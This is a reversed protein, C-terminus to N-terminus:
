VNVGSRDVLDLCPWANTHPAITKTKISNRLVERAEELSKVHGQALAQVMMNGAAGSGPPVVVVPLQLANATFHNLLSIEQGDLVFLKTIKHGTLSEMERLTNRYLTALSELICRIIPGPKRPVTQNTDRCFAQIELPMDGTTLFRPDTLDVLSEFPPSEGAFHILMNREIDHGGREKWLRECEELIWLGMIQKHFGVSGAYGIQNSFLSERTADNIIPKVLNTGMLARSGPRMFAWCEEAGVPLGALAAAIEHSCSAIVQVDDLKTDTAIAARLAGLNTGAPVIAPFLKAPLRAAALLRESWTKALPNFLQTTGASSMEVRPTGSLLYNFGDAIPLLQGAHNLRRSKETALQFLTNGPQGTVGTEDYITEPPVKDLIEQMGEELKSDSHLHVPTNLSGDHDFLMYDGGWSHCSISNIPENYTGIERLGTLIEGYLYPINWLRSAKEELPLNQFRHVESITLRGKHLTGLAVRGHEVGLDCAVYFNDM